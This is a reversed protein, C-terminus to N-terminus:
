WMLLCECWLAFWKREGLPLRECHGAGGEFLPQLVQGEREGFRFSLVSGTHGVWGWAGPGLFDSSDLLVDGIEAFYDGVLLESAYGAGSWGGVWKHLRVAPTPM